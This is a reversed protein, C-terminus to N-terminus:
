PQLVLHGETEAEVASREWHLPLYDGAAWLPAMDDNHPQYAHGSNGTANIQLSHEWDSLDFISRKSPISDATYAGSAANWSVANVISPGGAVKFPGRNFLSAIGLPFDSMVQHQFTITHLQGWTWGSADRGQSEELEAVAAAFAARVIEDRHEVAATSADDWWANEADALLNGMVVFWRSGGGPWYDEPLEDHFTLALLHRWWVNFLAAPASDVSQQGDWGDLLARVEDLHEDNLDIRLLAPLIELAGLNMSDMHMSQYYGTDIPGAAAEILELIRQARYGYDWTDVIQYPYDTGVVANNATVIYGSAPNFAYPLEEFPIYGQWAYEETWGPVPYRGDGAARIPIRGPMQYGINGEVDAYLLNQSPVSFLSAAERFEDWNQARALGLVSQFTTGPELATWRLAIAYHEPLEIGAKEGFGELSGYTGSIIPGFETLRVPLLIPDGGGVQVNEELIQMNVWEGNMEYQNTNDPNVKIIYLDMVDPGLNTFGWAIRANHGIIIGPASAFAVGVAEYNCDPGLPSCHLGVQYWISPMSQDLHPDNALLPAGSASLEGSVVWSNSGLEAEPLGGWLNDLAALRDGTRQMAPLLAANLEVELSPLAASEQEAHSFGQAIIPHKQPYGPFLEAIRDADLSHLLISRQIEQSMNDRLDWAMAKAWTLTNLPEWPAPEYGRNVLNLFLYEFSLESGSREALYANVGESFAELMALSQADLNKLEERAVREWGLTRLFLDTDVTANGLLESLRGASVHRQFDMQWFRDQAQVYGQAYFLDHESSAYIHPIGAADRYVDVRGELGDLDIEGDAQPFSARAAMPLYVALALALLALLGLLAFLIRRIWLSM